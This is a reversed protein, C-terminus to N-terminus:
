EVVEPSAQKKVWGLEEAKWRPIIIHSIKNGRKEAGRVVRLLSDEDLLSFPVWKPEAGYEPPCLQAAKRSIKKVFFGRLTVNDSM